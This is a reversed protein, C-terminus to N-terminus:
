FSVRRLLIITNSFRCVVKESLNNRQLGCNVSSTEFLIKGRLAQTRFCVQWGQRSKQGEQLLPVGGGEGKVRRWFSEWGRIRIQDRAAICQCHCM